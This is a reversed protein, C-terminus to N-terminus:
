QSSSPFPLASSAAKRSVEGRPSEPFPVHTCCSDDLLSMGSRPEGTGSAHAMRPRCCMERAAVSWKYCSSVLLLPALTPVSAQFQFDVLEIAFNLRPTQLGNYCRGTIM